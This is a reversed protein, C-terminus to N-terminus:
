RGFLCEPDEQQTRIPAALDLLSQEGSNEVIVVTSQMAEVTEGEIHSVRTSISQMEICIAKLAFGIDDRSHYRQQHKCNKCHHHSDSSSSLMVLSGLKAAALFFVLQCSCCM